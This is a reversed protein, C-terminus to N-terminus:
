NSETGSGECVPCHTVNEDTGGKCYGCMSPQANQANQHIEVADSTFDQIGNLVTALDVINNALFEALADNLHGNLLTQSTRDTM